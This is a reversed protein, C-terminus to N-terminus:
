KLLIRRDQVVQLRLVDLQRPEVMIWHKTAVKWQERRALSKPPVFDPAKCFYEM